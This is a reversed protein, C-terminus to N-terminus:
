NGEVRTNWHESKEKNFQNRDIESDRSKDHLVGDSGKGRHESQTLEVLPGDSKQGIHHLEIKEGNKDIPSLGQEMREKNTRNLPDVPTDLDLNEKVLCTQGNIEVEKLEGKRYVEGEEVSNISDIIEDSWSTEKQLKEKYEDLEMNEVDMDDLKETPEKIETNEIKSNEVEMNASRINDSIKVEPSKYDPDFESGLEFYGEKELIEIKEKIDTVKLSISELNKKPIEDVKIQTSEIKHLINESM